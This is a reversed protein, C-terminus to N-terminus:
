AQLYRGIIRLTARGPSLRVTSPNSLPLEISRSSYIRFNGSWQVVHSPHPIKFPYLGMKVILSHSHKLSLVQGRHPVGCARSSETRHSTQPHFTSSSSRPSGPDWTSYDPPAGPQLAIEKLLGISQSLLSTGRTMGGVRRGAATSVFFVKVLHEPASIRMM